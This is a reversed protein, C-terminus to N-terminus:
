AGFGEWEWVGGEGEGWDDDSDEESSSCAGLSRRVRAAVAKATRPQRRPPAAAESSAPARGTGRSATGLATRVEAFEFAADRWGRPGVGERAAESSSWVFGRERERQGRHESPHHFGSSIPSFAHRLADWPTTQQAPRAPRDSTPSTAERAPDPSHPSRRHARPASRADSPHPAPPADRSPAPADDLLVLLAQYAELVEQFTAKGGGGKRDERERPVRDPHLERALRLYAARADARTATLPLGLTSLCSTLTSRTTPQDM